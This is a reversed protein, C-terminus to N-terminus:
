VLGKKLLWIEGNNFLLNLKNKQTIEPNLPKYKDWATWSELLSDKKFIGYNYLLYDDNYFNGTYLKDYINYNICYFLIKRAVYKKTKAYQIGIYGLTNADSIITNDDMNELIFIASQEYFIYNSNFETTHEFNHYKVYITTLLLAGIIFIFILILFIKILKNFQFSCKLFKRELKIHKQSDDIKKILQINTLCIMLLFPILIVSIPAPGITKTTVFYFIQFLIAGFFISLAFIEKNTIKEINKKYIAYIFYIFLSFYTIIFSIYRVIDIIYPAIFFHYKYQYIQPVFSGKSFLGHLFISFDFIQVIDYIRTFAESERIYIWITISFILLFFLMNVIYKPIKNKLGLLYENFLYIFILYLIAPFLFLIHASHWYLSLSIFCIICCIALFYNKKNIYIILFYLTSMELILAISDWWILFSLVSSLLIRNEKFDSFMSFFLIFSFFVIISGIIYIFQHVALINSNFVELIIKLLSYNTIMTKFGYPGMSVDSYLGFNPLFLNSYHIPTYFTGVNIPLKIIRFVISIIFILFGLIDRKKM